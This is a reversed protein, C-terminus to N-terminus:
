AKQSLTSSWTQEGAEWVYTMFARSKWRGTHQIQLESLGQAALSTAGGIRRSHPAIQMPDRGSIGVMLRLAAVAETRTFERWGSSTGRITPPAERPLQPHVDLLEVLAGFAGMSAGGTEKANALRTRSITCGARKQESKLALFHVQVASAASRNEFALQIGERLFTLSNQTLCYDPHVKGDAYAWLESARCLLFYSVALGLWMVYGGDVMSEVVRRGQSLMAWTLPLRVRAKKNLVGHVRDLGKEVVLIMCHSTPLECGAFMKHLFNIAALYDRVTSQQNNHVFCRSTIFELLDDLM